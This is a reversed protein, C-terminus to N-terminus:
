RAVHRRQLSSLFRTGSTQLLLCTEDRERQFVREEDLEADEGSISSLEFLGCIKPDPQLLLVRVGKEAALM